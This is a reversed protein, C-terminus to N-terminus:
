RAERIELVHLFGIKFGHASDNPTWFLSYRYGWLIFMPGVFVLSFSTVIRQSSYFLKGDFTVQHASVPQGSPDVMVPPGQPHQHQHQPIIPQGTPDVLVQPQHDNTDYMPTDVMQQQMLMQDLQGSSSVMHQDSEIPQGSVGLIPPPLPPPLPQGTADLLM